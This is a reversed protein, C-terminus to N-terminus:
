QTALLASLPSTPHFAREPLRNAAFPRAPKSPRGSSRAWGQFDCLRPAPGLSWAHTEQMTKPKTPDGTSTAAGTLARRPQEGVDRVKAPRRGRGHGPARRPRGM